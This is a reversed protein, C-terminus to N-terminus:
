ALGYARAFLEIPHVAAGCEAGEGDLADIGQVIHEGALPCESAIHAKAARAAARAVPKGTKLAVEFNPKMVSWAGGHGSCRKIVEVDAGPILALLNGAM